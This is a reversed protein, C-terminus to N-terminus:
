LYLVVYVFQIRRLCYFFWFLFQFRNKLKVDDYLAGWRKQIGEVELKTLPKCSLYCFGLLVLLCCVICFIAFIYSATDGSHTFIPHQLNLSCAILLEIYGELITYFLGGLLAGRFATFWKSKRRYQCTLFYIVPLLFLKIIWWVLFVSVSGMVKLSNHSEYGLFAM